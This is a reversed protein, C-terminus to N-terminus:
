NGKQHPTAKAIAEDCLKNIHADFNDPSDIHRSIAKLAELLDPAAAILRANAAWEDFVIDPNEGNGVSCVLKGNGGEVRAQRSYQKTTDATWPGPTHKPENM